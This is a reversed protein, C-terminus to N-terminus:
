GPRCRASVPRRRDVEARDQRTRGAPGAPPPRHLRCRAALRRSQPIRRCRAGLRLLGLRRGGLRDGQHAEAGAASALMDAVLKETERSGTGNGIAILEVGHKPDAVCAGGAHWADNRPPFPYVTTTELLKGTGDVVAVKVGTRIGPDLGMTARSGAPAALLLDKLNRAFVHHGGGRRTRAARADPRPLAVPPPAQRWAWGAGGDRLWKRDAM